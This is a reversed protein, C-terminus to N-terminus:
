IFHTDADYLKYPEEDNKYSVGAIYNSNFKNEDVFTKNIFGVKFGYENVMQYINIECPVCMLIPFKTGELLSYKPINGIKIRLDNVKLTNGSLQIFNVCIKATNQPFFSKLYNM